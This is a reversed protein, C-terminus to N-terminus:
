PKPKRDAEEVKKALEDAWEAMWPEVEVQEEQVGEPVFFPGHQPARARRKRPPPRPGPTMASEEVPASLPTPPMPLCRSRPELLRKIGFGAGVGMGLGLLTFGVKGATSM